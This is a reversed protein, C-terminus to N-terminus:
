RLGDKERDKDVYVVERPKIMGLDERAVKEIFKVSDSNSIESELESIDKKLEKIREQKKSIESLKENRRSINNSINFAGYTVSFLILIAFVLPFPKIKKM